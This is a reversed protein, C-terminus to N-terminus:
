MYQVVSQQISMSTSRLLGDMLGHIMHDPVFVVGYCCYDGEGDRNGQCYIHVTGALRIGSQSNRRRKCYTAIIIM